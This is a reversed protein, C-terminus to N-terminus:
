RPQGGYTFNAFFPKRSNAIALELFGNKLVLFEQCIVLRRTDYGEYDLLSHSLLICLKGKAERYCLELLSMACEDLPRPCRGRLASIVPEFGTHAVKKM